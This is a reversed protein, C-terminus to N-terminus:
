VITEKVELQGRRRGMEFVARLVPDHLLMEHWDFENSAAVSALDVLVTRLFSDDPFAIVGAGVPRPAIGKKPPGQAVVHVHMDMAKTYNTFPGTPNILVHRDDKDVLAAYYNPVCNCYVQSMSMSLDTHILM